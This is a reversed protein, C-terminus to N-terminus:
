GDPNLREKNTPIGSADGDGFLERGHALRWRLLEVKEASGPRAPTPEPTITEGNWDAEIGWASSLRLAEEWTDAAVMLLRKSERNCEICEDSHGQRNVSIWGGCSKCRKGKRKAENRQDRNWM